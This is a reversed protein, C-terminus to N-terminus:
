RRIKQEKAIELKKISAKMLDNLNNIPEKKYDRKYLWDLYINNPADEPRAYIVNNTHLFLGFEVNTTFAPMDILDRPVWFAIVNSENLGEHEWSFIKGIEESDQHPNKFIKFEPIYVTGNFGLKKLIKIAQPRWSVVSEKRPTPGALFISKESKEVKDEYYKVIM